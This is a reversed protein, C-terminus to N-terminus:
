ELTWLTLADKDKVFLRNGAVVPYAYTDSDAVKYSALQEFKKDSPEFVTLQAAPTLALLVPGADMISGYGPRGGGKLATTWDTKGNEANLCFLNDRDSLGYVLGNKVLPTSFQVSTDPNSWLDKATVDDGKKELKVAKTGRGSGSYVLTQGDAIPTAANYGRGRVAFPTQWLLKGDALNLGVINKDMEAVIVKTGDVTLLVPSAYATGEGTWKWKEDGTGLDYAVVGGNSQGGVEAVCLGDVLIPSSAVYFRPWAKSDKRWVVKGSATDLCSLVGGVGLTCVKGDAVAPSSRPGPHSAPPGSVSVAPYKDQWLVKGDAAELCSIVEDGGQRTFVYVKDGVVAPAADGLGVSVKWKQTLAKPWAQPATFGEAKGDRHPGLWQPWDQAWAGTAGLLLVWGILVGKTWDATRM